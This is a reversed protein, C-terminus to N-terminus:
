SPTGTPTGPLLVQNVALQLQGHCARGFRTTLHPQPDILATALVRGEIVTMAGEDGADATLLYHPCSRGKPSYSETAVPLCTARTRHGRRDVARVLRHAELPKCVPDAVDLWGAHGNVATNRQGISASLSRTSASCSRRIPLLTLGTTSAGRACTSIRPATVVM